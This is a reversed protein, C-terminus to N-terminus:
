LSPTRCIRTLSIRGFFVSSTFSVVIMINVLRNRARALIGMTIRIMVVLPHLVACMKTFRAGLDDRTTAASMYMGRVPHIIASSKRSRSMLTSKDREYREYRPSDHYDAAYSVPRARARPAPYRREDYYAM